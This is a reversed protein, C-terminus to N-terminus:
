KGGYYWVSRRSSCIHRFLQVKKKIVEHFLNREPQLKTQIEKNV